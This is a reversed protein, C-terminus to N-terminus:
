MATTGAFTPRPSPIGRLAYTQPEIGWPPENECTLAMGSFRQPGTAQRTAQNSMTEAPRLGNKTTQNMADSAQAVSAWAAVRHVAVIAETLLVAGAPSVVQTGATDLDPSPYFGIGKKV